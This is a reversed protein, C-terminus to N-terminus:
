IWPLGVLLHAVSWSSLTHCIALLICLSVTGVIFQLNFWGYQLLPWNSMVSLSCLQLTAKTVVPRFQAFSIWHIQLYRGLLSPLTLRCASWMSCISYHQNYINRLAKSPFIYTISSYVLSMHRCLCNTSIYITSYTSHSTINYECNM